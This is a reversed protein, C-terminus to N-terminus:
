QRNHGPSEMTSIESVPSAINIENGSPVSTRAAMGRWKWLILALLIYGLNYTLWFILYASWSNFNKQDTIYFLSIDSPKSGHFYQSSWNHGLHIGIAFYLTKSRLLATGFVYHSILFSLINFPLIILNGWIDHYSAFMIGWVLNAMIVNSVEATKKYAYGRFLLQQTAVTPLILVMGWGLQLWNINPTFHWREGTYMTRSYTSVAFASVGLLLGGFLFLFNRLTIDLGIAALSKGETRYLLWTASVLLLFGTYPFYVIKGILDSLVLATLFLFAALIFRFASPYKQVFHKM